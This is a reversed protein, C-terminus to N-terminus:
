GTASTAPLSVVGDQVIVLGDRELSRVAEPDQAARVTEAAAVRRLLASRRQRFSGEFPSQKRAPEDRTGRSPCVVALPCAECRPIRALCVTAGLDMLAQGAAGTFVHGTRREVREVNVDRPLVDEGLAFNCIAAATYPGVGPLDTLDDPWGHAAIQQAARHLAIARRNYGLGQWARIVEAPTAAALAAPTPWRDLWELYRPVVRDVQTQQLMVESVFIAYPDTTHRWPLDRGHEGYWALLLSEVRGIRRNAAHGGGAAARRSVIPRVFSELARFPTGILADM